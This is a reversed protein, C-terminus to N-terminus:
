TAEELCGVCIWGQDTSGIRDGPNIPHRADLACRGDWAARATRLISVPVGVPKVDDKHGQCHACQDKILDTLHCRDEVITM